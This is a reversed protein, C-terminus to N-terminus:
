SPAAPQPSQGAPPTDAARQQQLTVLLTQVRANLADVRALQQRALNVANARQSQTESMRAQLRERAAALDAGRRKIGADLAGILQVQADNMRGVFAHTDDERVASVYRSTWAAFANQRALTKRQKAMLMAAAGGVALGAIEGLGPVPIFLSVLRQIGLIPMVEAYVEMASRSKQDTPEFQPRDEVAGASIQSLSERLSTDEAIVDIVGIVDDVMKSATEQALQAAMADVAAMFQGALQQLEVEDRCEKALKDYKVKLEALQKTMAHSRDNKLQALSANLQARWVAEAPSLEALRTQEGELEAQLAPNGEAIALQQGALQKMEAVARLCFRITNAGWLLHARNTGTRPAIM